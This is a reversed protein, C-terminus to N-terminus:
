NARKRRAAGILGAIGTGFLLMTAPEPVPSTNGVDGDHLIMFYNLGGAGDGVQGGNTNLNFAYYGGNSECYTSTLYSLYFGTEPHNAAINTFPGQNSYNVDYTWFLYGMESEKVAAEYGLGVTVGDNAYATPIRWGTIGLYDLEATWAIANERTMIGYGYEGAGVTRAYNANQMWTVDQVDDYILGNGRDILTASANGHLLFIGLAISLQLKKM